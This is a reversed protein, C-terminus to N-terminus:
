IIGAAALDALDRADRDNRKRREEDEAGLRSLTEATWDRPFGSGGIGGGRHRKSLGNVDAFVVDAFVADGFVGGFGDM